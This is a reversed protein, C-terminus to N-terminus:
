LSGGKAIDQHQMKNLSLIAFLGGFFLAIASAAIGFGYGKGEPMLVCGLTLAILAAGVVMCSGLFTAQHNTM